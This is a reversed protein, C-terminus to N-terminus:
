TITRKSAAEYVGIKVFLGAQQGQALQYMDRRDVMYVSNFDVVSTTWSQGNDLAVRCAEQITETELFDTSYVNVEYRPRDLTSPCGKSLTPNLSLESVLIYPADVNQPAAMPYVKYQSNDDLGILAQVNSDEILIEVIGSTM